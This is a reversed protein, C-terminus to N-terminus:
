PTPAFAANKFTYLTSCAIGVEASIKRVPIGLKLMDLAQAKMEPTWSPCRGTRFNDKEFAEMSQISPSRKRPRVWGIAAKKEYYRKRGQRRREKVDVYKKTPKRAAACNCSHHSFAINSIDFFVELENPAGLWNIKHDISFVDVTEIVESCRYCTLLDLKRALDFMIMKRLKCSASGSSIGGVTRSM